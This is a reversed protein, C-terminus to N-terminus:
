REEIQTIACTDIDDNHAGIGLEGGIGTGDAGENISSSLSSEPAGVGWAERPGVHVHLKLAMSIGAGARASAGGLRQRWNNQASGVNNLSSPSRVITPLPNRPRTSGLTHASAGAKDRRAPSPLPRNSGSGISSSSSGSTRDCDNGAHSRLLNVWRTAEALTDARLVLTREPALIEFTTTLAAAGDRPSVSIDVVRTSWKFDSSEYHSYGLVGGRLAFFRRDFRDKLKRKKHLWGACVVHAM